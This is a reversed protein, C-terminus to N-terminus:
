RDAFYTLEDKDVGLYEYAILISRVINISKNIDESIDIVEIDNRALVKRLGNASYNNVIDLNVDM